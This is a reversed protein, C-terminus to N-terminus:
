TTEERGHALLEWRLNQNKILLDTVMARLKRNEQALQRCDTLASIPEIDVQSCREGIMGPRRNHM